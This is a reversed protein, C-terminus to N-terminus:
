IKVEPANRQTALEIEFFPQTSFKFIAAILNSPFTEVKTNFDRVTGNYYRRAMQLEDEITVLSKHLNMFNESAKLDPYAEAVAFLRKISDTIQNESQSVENINQLSTNQSRAATINELVQKEHSTYGKVVEVLNPVLDFRRKLQVDIGSWAEKFINKAKVMANYTLIAYIFILILIVSIVVTM